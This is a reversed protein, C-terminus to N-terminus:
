IASQFTYGLNTLLKKKVTEVFYEVNRNIVKKEVMDMVTEVDSETKIEVEKGDVKYVLSCFSLSKFNIGSLGNFIAHHLNMREQIALDFKKEKLFVDLKQFRLEIDQITSGMGSDMILFKDFLHKRAMPMEDVTEYLEVGNFTQM